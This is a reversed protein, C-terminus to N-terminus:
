GKVKGSCWTTGAKHSYWIRGDKEWRKMEVGHIPCFHSAGNGNGNGNNSPVFANVPIVEPNQPQATNTQSSHNGCDYPKCGIQILYSIAAGVKELLEKGTEGRLTLQCVFGDPSIYRTNWSAPAELSSLINQPLANESM